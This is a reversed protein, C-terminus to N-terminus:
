LLSKPTNSTVTPFVNKCSKPFILVVPIPMTTCATWCGPRIKILMMESLTSNLQFQFTM